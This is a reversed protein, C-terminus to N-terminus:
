VSLAFEAEGDIEVVEVIRGHATLTEGRHVV